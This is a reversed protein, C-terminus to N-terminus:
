ASVLRMKLGDRPPLTISPLPVPPTAGEYILSFRRGVGMLLTMAEMMAFGEGLCTRPGGGFPMFAYRPLQKEFAPTWREPWFREPSEFYDPHRGMVYPSIVVGVGKPIRYGGIEVPEVPERGFLYAAPYLRLSERIVGRTLPLQQLTEWTPPQDGLVQQWEERLASWYHPHQSLLYFAWSLTIATTDHGALFLTVTEDRLQKDSLPSGDEYRAAMLMALLSRQDDPHKRHEAIFGMVRREIYRLTWWYRLNNPLPMADLFLFPRVMRIAIQSELAHVADRLRHNDDALEVNFLAKAIIEATLQMMDDHVNRETGPQWAKLLRNTHEVMLDVYHALRKPQFAPAALKRHTRWTDGESTLLGQGFIETFHQWFGRNKIFKEHQGNLVEGIFTPDSILYNTGRLLRFRVVPGHEARMSVVFAPIDRVFDPLSGLLWHGKPGPALTSPAQSM